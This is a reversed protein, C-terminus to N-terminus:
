KYNYIESNSHSGVRLNARISNKQRIYIKFECRKLPPNIYIDDHDNSKNEITPLKDIYDNTEKYSYQIPMKKYSGRKISMTSSNPITCFYYGKDYYAINHKDINDINSNVIKSANM